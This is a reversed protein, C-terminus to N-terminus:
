YSFMAAVTTFFTCVWLLLCLIASTEHEELDNFHM